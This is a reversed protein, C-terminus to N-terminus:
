MNLMEGTPVHVILSPGEDVWGSGASGHNINDAEQTDAYHHVKTQTNFFRELIDAGAGAASPNAYAEFAVGEYQYAHLTSMIQDREAVSTTYFHDKTATDYFRFVDVTDAGKDPTSWAIGEFKYTSLTAQVQAKEAASLTYFHDGTATDFFRYVPNLGATGSSGSISLDPVSASSAESAYLVPNHESGRTALTTGFSLADLFQAQTLGALSGSSSPLTVTTGRNVYDTTLSPISNGVDLPTLGHGALISVDTSAIAAYVPDTSAEHGIEARYLGLYPVPDDAIEYNIIRADPAASILAGPSGFTAALHRVTGDDPHDAMYVQALAAGLSHGTVIVPIHNQAAYSDVASVLATLQSYDANVNRLDNIWDQRDDSGRFSLVVVTQGDLTGTVAAGFANQHAYTGNTLGPASLPTFGAPLGALTDSYTATAITALTGAITGM